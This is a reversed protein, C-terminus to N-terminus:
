RLSLGRPRALVDCILAILSLCVIADRLTIEDICHYICSLSQIERRLLMDNLRTMRGRLAIEDICHSFGIVDEMESLCVILAILSAHQEIESPQRLDICHSLDMVDEIEIAYICMITDRM